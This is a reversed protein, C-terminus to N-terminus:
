PVTPITEPFSRNGHHQILLDQSDSHWVERPTGPEEIAEISLNKGVPRHFVEKAGSALEPM